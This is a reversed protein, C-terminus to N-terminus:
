PLIEKIAKEFMAAKRKARKVDDHAESYKQMLSWADTELEVKRLILKGLGQTLKSADNVALIRAFEKQILGLEYRTEKVKPYEDTFEVALEELTAELETKRLLVEAYAPSSKIASQANAAPVAPTPKPKTKTQASCIFASLLLFALAAATKQM